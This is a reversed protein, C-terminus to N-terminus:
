FPNYPLEEPVGSTLILAAFVAPHYVILFKINLKRKKYGEWLHIVRGHVNIVRGMKPTNSGTELYYISQKKLNAVIGLVITDLTINPDRDDLLFANSYLRQVKYLSILVEDPNEVFM